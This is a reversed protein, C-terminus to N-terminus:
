HVSFFDIDINSKISKKQDLKFFKEDPLIHIQLCQPLNHHIQPLGSTASTMIQGGLLLVVARM